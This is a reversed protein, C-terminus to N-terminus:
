LVEAISKEQCEQRWDAHTTDVAPESTVTKADFDICEDLTTKSSIQTFLERSETDIEENIISM